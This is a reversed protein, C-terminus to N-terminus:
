KEVSARRRARGERDPTTRGLVPSQLRRGRPLAWIATAGRCGPPPRRISRHRSRWSSPDRSRRGPRRVAAREGKVALGTRASEGKGIRPQREVDDVAEVHLDVRATGRGRFSLEPEVVEGGAEAGDVDRPRCGRGACPDRRPSTENRRARGRGTLRQEVTERAGQKRRQLPSADGSVKPARPRNPKSM